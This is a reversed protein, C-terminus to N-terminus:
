KKCWFGVKLVIKLLFRLWGVNVLKVVGRSEFGMSVIIRYDEFVKGFGSGVFFWVKELCWM